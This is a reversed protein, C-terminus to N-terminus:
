PHPTEKWPIIQPQIHDEIVRKEGMKSFVKDRWWCEGRSDKM